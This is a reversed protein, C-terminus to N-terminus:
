SQGKEDLYVEEYPQLVVWGDGSFRLQISEGSGRGIFTRASIDTHIDPMLSGSWAVTASPDTFVPSGARVRLTLPHYHTTIALMGTGSVRINFLGGALMGSVRRMMKIDWDLSEDMALLDNGNVFITDDTLHLVQVRKGRDALYVRGRGEVKMLKAGEGTVVKKLLKGVGHEMVGERTFKVAGSYGIMSGLKAWVRGNLNLELVHPNELQFPETAFEDQATAEVFAEISREHM